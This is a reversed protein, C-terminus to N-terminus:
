TSAKHKLSFFFFFVMCLVHTGSLKKINLWWSLFFCLFRCSTKAWQSFADNSNEFLQCKAGLPLHSRLFLSNVQIIDSIFNVPIYHCQVPFLSWFWGLSFSICSPLTTAQPIRVFLQSFFLFSFYLIFSFICGVSHLTGYFLM